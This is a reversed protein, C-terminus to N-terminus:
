AFEELCRCAISACKALHIHNIWSTYAIAIVWKLFLFCLIRQQRRCCVEQILCIFAFSSNKCLSGTHHETLNKRSSLKFATRWQRICPMTNTCPERSTRCPKM